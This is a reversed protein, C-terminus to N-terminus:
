ATINRRLPLFNHYIKVDKLVALAVGDGEAIIIPIVFAIRHQYFLEVGVVGLSGKMQIRHIIYVCGLLVEIFYSLQIFTVLNRCMGDIVGKKFPDRPRRNYVLGKLISPRKFPDEPADHTPHRIGEARIIILDLLDQATAADYIASSGIRRLLKINRVIKKHPIGGAM